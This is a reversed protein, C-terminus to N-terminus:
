RAVRAAAMFAKAREPDVPNWTATDVKLSTGVIVGDYARLYAGVTEETVGTNVLVPVQAGVAQKAEAVDAESVPAGAMPGAILIADAMANVAASRARQGVTRPGLSGAFEPTVNMLLRVHDAGIESRFRLIAAPDPSWLGMDSEYTGTFVERVFSAGTAHAIAIAAKPDWLYDVGFPVKEPALRSVVASMVAIAEIPAELAYPRDAENCFMVSDFGAELLAVLDQEVVGLIKATGGARDYLPTHPLPPFHVMGIVPRDTGFLEHLWSV